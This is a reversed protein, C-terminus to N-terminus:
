FSPSNGFRTHIGLVYKALVSPRTRASYVTNHKRTQRRTLSLYGGLFTRKNRTCLLYLYVWVHWIESRSNCIFRAKLLYQLKDPGFHDPHYIHRVIANAQSRTRSHLYRQGQFMYHIEIVSLSLLVLNKRRKLILCVGSFLSPSM